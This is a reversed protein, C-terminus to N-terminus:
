LLSRDVKSDQKRRETTLVIIDAKKRSKARTGSLDTWHKKQTNQKNSVQCSYSPFLYSVIGTSTSTGAVVRTRSFFHPRRASPLALPLSPPFYFVCGIFSRSVDAFLSSHPLLLVSLCWVDVNTYAPFNANQTKSLVHWAIALRSRAFESFGYGYNVLRHTRKVLRKTNRMVNKDTM